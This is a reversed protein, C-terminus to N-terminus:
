LLENVKLKKSVDVFITKAIKDLYEQAEKYKKRYNKVVDLTDLEFKAEYLEKQLEDLPLKLKIADNYNTTVNQFRVVKKIFEENDEMEKEAEKVSIILPHHLLENNLENILEILHEDM